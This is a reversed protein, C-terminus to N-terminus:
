QNETTKGLKPNGGKSGNEQHKRSTEAMLVLKRSYIVGSKKKSFVGNEALQRLLQRLEDVPVGVLISLQEETPIQGAITLHGYPKADHMICLLEMWLGRAAISCMRLKPESQWDNPYFKFWSYRKM